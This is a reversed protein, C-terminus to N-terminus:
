HVLKKKTGIITNGRPMTGNFDNFDWAILKIEAFTRTIEKDFPQIKVSEISKVVSLSGYLLKQEDASSCDDLLDRLDGTFAVSSGDAINEYENFFLKESVKWIGVRRYDAGRYVHFHLEHYKNGEYENDKIADLVILDKPKLTVRAGVKDTTGEGSLTCVIKGKNSM